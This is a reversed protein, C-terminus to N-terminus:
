ALAGERRAERGLLWASGPGAAIGALAIPAWAWHGNMCAAMGAWGFSGLLELLNVLRSEKYRRKLDSRKGQRPNWVQCLAASLAGGTCCFYLAFAAYPDRLLWWLFLPLLLALIPLVATAAKLWRIRALSVPATGVLEPADEAAVMLWALNGALMAVIMVLVPVLLIGTAARFGLFMAPILYLIQLLTQSIVNPDRLIMRWEKLIVLQSLGSRFTVPGISASVPTRGGALSEQSGLIFRQYTINVVLWFGGIGALTVVFLPLVDGFVARAPWWLLSDAAFWGGEEAQQRGWNLLAQRTERPLLNQSQALLFFAAGIFAGLVQAATKARRAGLWRVLSMTLLMGAAASILGMVMVVPYIAFLGPWGVFPGIHAMPLLLFAPLLCASVAIGLGRVTFVARPTLPSSLLLDLDGRDFLASVSHAMTQSLLISLLLWFMGGAIILALLPYDGQAPNARHLLAWAAYHMAAWILGGFVITFWIRKGGIGRWALRLEHRLLWWWSGTAQSQTVTNM